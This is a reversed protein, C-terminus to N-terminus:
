VFLSSWKLFDKRTKQVYRRSIQVIQEQGAGGYLIYMDKQLEKVHRFNVVYSNHCQSFDLESLQPVIDRMREKVHYENWVTLTDFTTNLLNDSKDWSDSRFELNNFIKDVPM